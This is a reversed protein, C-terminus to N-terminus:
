RRGRWVAARCPGWLRCCSCWWGRGDGGGLSCGTSSGCRKSTGQTTWKGLLVLSLSFRRGMGGRALVSVEGVKEDVGQEGVQDADEDPDVRPQFGSRGTVGIGVRRVEEPFEEVGGAARRAKAFGKFVAVQGM